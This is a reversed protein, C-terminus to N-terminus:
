SPRGARRPPASGTGSRGRCECARDLGSVARQRASIAGEYGGGRGSRGGRRERYDRPGPFLGTRMMQLTRVKPDFLLGRREATAVLARALKRCAAEGETLSPADAYARRHPQRAEEEADPQGINVARGFRYRAEVVRSLVRSAVPLPRNQLWHIFRAGGDGILFGLLMDLFTEEGHGTALEYYSQIAEPTDRSAGEEGRSSRGHVHGARRDRGSGPEKPLERDQVRGPRVDGISM